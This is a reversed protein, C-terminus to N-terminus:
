SLLIVPEDYGGLLSSSAAAAAAGPERLDGLVAEAARGRALLARCDAGVHRRDPALVQLARYQVRERMVQHVRFRHLDEALFIGGLPVAQLRLRLRIGAPRAQLLLQALDSPVVLFQDVRDQGPYRRILDLVPGMM